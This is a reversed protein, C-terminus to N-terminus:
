NHYMKTHGSGFSYMTMSHEFPKLTNDREICGTEKLLSDINALFFLSEKVDESLDVSDLM